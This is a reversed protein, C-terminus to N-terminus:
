RKLSNIETEGNYFIRKWTSITYSYYSPMVYSICDYQRKVIIEPIKFTNIKNTYEETHIKNWWQMWIHQFWKYEQSLNM